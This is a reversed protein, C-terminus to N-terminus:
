AADLPASSDSVLDSARSYPGTPMVTLLMGGDPMSVGICCWPWAAPCRGDLSCIAALM